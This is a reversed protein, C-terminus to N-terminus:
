STASRRGAKGDMLIRKRVANDLENAFSELSSLIQSARNSLYNHAIVAPIAVFLGAITTSLATSVGPALSTLNATGERGLGQFASLVGWVTGFLGIFPAVSAAMALYYLSRQLRREEEQIVRSITSGVTASAIEVRHELPIGQSTGFWKELHCVLYTERLMRALSSETYRRSEAYLKEWSGDRDVMKEFRRNQFEVRALEAWKYLILYVMFVSGIFLALICGKGLWDNDRFAGLIDVSALLLPLPM